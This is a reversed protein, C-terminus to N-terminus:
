KIAYIKSTLAGWVLDFVGLIAAIILTTVLVVITAVKTENWNPWTVKKLENAIEVSLTSITPHLKLAAVTGVGVLLGCLTSVTFNEGLLWKDLDASILGLAFAFFKSFVVWALLGLFGYGINVYRSVNM